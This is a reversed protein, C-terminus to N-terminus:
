AAGYDEYNSNKNVIGVSYHLMVLWNRKLQANLHNTIGEIFITLFSQVYLM